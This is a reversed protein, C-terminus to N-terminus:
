PTARAAASLRERLDRLQQRLAQARRRPRLAQLEGSMMHALAALVARQQPHRAVREIHRLADIVRLLVQVDGRSHRVIAEFALPLLADFDVPRAVLCLHGDQWRQAQPPPRGALRALISALRDICMCATAPDNIGPSLARLAVDVLQQVGFAADQDVTRQDGLHVCARLRAALSKGIEAAGGLDVLGEGEIVFDGVAPRLRVVRQCQSACQVLEDGDVGTVYGSRQATVEAWVQPMQAAVAAEDAPPDATESPFLRDVTALTEGTIHAVISSAQISDAVHHIFYILLGIGGFAYGISGLVALSPIFDGDAPGRLTRLVVLCYAFIGVFVGFVVQTTRDGMFNRLVRPSYQSSALSLAVVTISFVVGAVTIMSTAIAALLARSGDAGAGFLRPWQQEFNQDVFGQAEILVLAAGLSALTIMTPVFWLSDRLALWAARLRNM